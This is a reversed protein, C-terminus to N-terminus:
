FLSMLKRTKVKLCQTIWSTPDFVHHPAPLLQFVSINGLPINSQSSLASISLYGKKKKGGLLCIGRKKEEM